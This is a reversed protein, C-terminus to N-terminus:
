ATAAVTVTVAIATIVRSAARVNRQNDSADDTTAAEDADDVVHHGVAHLLALLRLLLPSPLTPLILNPDTLRIIAVHRLLGIHNMIVRVINVILMVLIAVNLHCCVIFVCHVPRLGIQILM